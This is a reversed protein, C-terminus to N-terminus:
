PLPAIDRYAYDPDTADNWWARPDNKSMGSSAKWDTGRTGMSPDAFIYSARGDLFAVNHRAWKRHSGRLPKYEWLSRGLPDDWFIIFRSADRRLQTRLFANAINLWPGPGQPPKRTDFAWYRVFLYNTGYSTGMYRYRNLIRSPSASNTWTEGQDSPCEFVPVRRVIDFMPDTEPVDWKPLDPYLFRNLPRGDPTNRYQPYTYGWWENPNNPSRRGPHGGYYLSHMLTASEASHRNFPFWEGEEFFYLTMARAIERMNALCRTQKGAERAAALAPLVISILIAVIAVVVLLEILTFGRRAGRTGYRTLHLDRM